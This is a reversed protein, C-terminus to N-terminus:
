KLIKHYLKETEEIMKDLSFKKEIKASANQGLDTRLKKDGALKIIASALSKPNKPEVLTGSNKDVLEPIGGVDSAIVPIGMSMAEAAALGFSESLSPQVYIDWNKMVEFIDNKQGLFKIYNELHYKKVMAKLELEDSGTGVLELQLKYGTAQLMAEHIAEVLYKYGKIKTLTGVSGIIVENQKKGAGVQGSNLRPLKKSSCRTEIGNYIVEIKDAPFMKKDVLYNKVAKSVAIVKTIYKSLHRFVYIQSVHILKNHPVYTNTFLHETYVIPIKSDKAALTGLIGARASHLHIINPKEIKIINKIKKVAKFDIRSKMEVAYTKIKNETKAIIPSPRSILTPEFGSDLNSILNLVHRSGGGFNKDSIIHLVKIKM